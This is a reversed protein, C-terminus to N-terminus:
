SLISISLIFSELLILTGEKKLCSGYIRFHEYIYCKNIKKNTNMLFIFPLMQARKRRVILQLQCTEFKMNLNSDFEECRM